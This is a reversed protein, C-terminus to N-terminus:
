HVYGLAKLAERTAADLERPPGAAGPRPLSALYRDLLSAM